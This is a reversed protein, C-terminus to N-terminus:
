HALMWGITAFLAMFGMVTMGVFFREVKDM